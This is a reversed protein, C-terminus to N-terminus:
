GGHISAAVVIALGLIFAGSMVAAAVNGEDFIKHGLDMPTLADFIRYGIFLLVFGLVSFIAALLMNFLLQEVNLTVGREGEGSRALCGGATRRRRIGAM